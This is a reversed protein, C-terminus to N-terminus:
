VVNMEKFKLCGFSRHSSNFPKNNKEDVTHKKNGGKKGVRNKKGSAEWAGKIGM